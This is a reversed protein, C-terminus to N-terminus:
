RGPTRMEKEIAVAFSNAMTRIDEHPTKDRVAIVAQRIRTGCGSIAPFVQASLESEATMALCRSPSACPTSM